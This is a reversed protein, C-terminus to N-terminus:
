DACWWIDRSTFLGLREGVRVGMKTIGYKIQKDNQDTTQLILGRKLLEQSIDEPQSSEEYHKFSSLGSVQRGTLGESLTKSLRDLEKDKNKKKFYLYTSAGAALLLFLKLM